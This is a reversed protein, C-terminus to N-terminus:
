RVIVLSDTLGRWDRQGGGCGMKKRHQRIHGTKPCYCGSREVYIEARVMYLM